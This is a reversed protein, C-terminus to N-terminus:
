TKVFYYNVPIIVCRLIFKTFKLVTDWHSYKCQMSKLFWYQYPNEITSKNILIFTLLQEFGPNILM